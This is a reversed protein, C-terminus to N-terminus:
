RRVHMWHPGGGCLRIKACVEGVGRWVCMCVCVARAELATPGRAGEVEAEAGAEVELVELEQRWRGGM